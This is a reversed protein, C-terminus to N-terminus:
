FFCGFLLSSIGEKEFILITIWFPYLHLASQKFLQMRQAFYKHIQSLVPLNDRIIGNRTKLDGKNAAKGPWLM